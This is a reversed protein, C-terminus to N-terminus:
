CNAMIIAVNWSELCCEGHCKMEPECDFQVSDRETKIRIKAHVQWDSYNFLIFYSRAGLFIM